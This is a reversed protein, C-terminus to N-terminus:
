DEVIKVPEAPDYEYAVSGYLWNMCYELDASVVLAGTEKEYICAYIYESRDGRGRRIDRIEYTM